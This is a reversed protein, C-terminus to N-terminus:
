IKSFLAAPSGNCEVGQLQDIQYEPAYALLGNYYDNRSTVFLHAPTLASDFDLYRRIHKLYRIQYYSSRCVNATHKMLKLEYMGKVFYCHHRLRHVIRMCSLYDLSRSTFSILPGQYSHDLTRTTWSAFSGPYSNFM